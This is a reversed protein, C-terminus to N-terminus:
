QGVRCQIPVAAPPAFYINADAAPASSGGILSRHAAIHSHLLVLLDEPSHIAGDLTTVHEPWRLGNM